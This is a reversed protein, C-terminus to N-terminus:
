NTMYPSIVRHNRVREADTLGALKYQVQNFLRTLGFKEGPFKKNYYLSDFNASNLIM